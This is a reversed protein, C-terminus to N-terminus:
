SQTNSIRFPMDAKSIAIQFQMCWIEKSYPRSLCSSYIPGICPLINTNVLCLDIASHRCFFYLYLRKPIERWKIVNPAYWEICPPPPPPPPLSHKKKRLLSNKENGLGFLRKGKHIRVLYKNGGRAHFLCSSCLSLRMLSRGGILQSDANDCWAEPM